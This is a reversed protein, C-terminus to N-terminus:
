YLISYGGNMKMLETFEKKFVEVRNVSKGRGNGFVNEYCTELEERYDTKEVIKEVVKSLHYFLVKDPLSVYNVNQIFREVIPNKIATIIQQVIPRIPTNPRQARYQRYALQFTYIVSSPYATSIRLLLNDLFCVNEFDFRSIIQTIWALFIWLPM